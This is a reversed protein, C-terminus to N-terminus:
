YQYSTKEDLQQESQTAKKIWYKKHYESHKGPHRAFWSRMYANRMQRAKEQISITPEM